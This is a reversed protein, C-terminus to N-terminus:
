LAVRDLSKDSEAQAISLFRAARLIPRGRKGLATLIDLFAADVERGRETAAAVAMAVGSTTLNNIGYRNAMDAFRGVRDLYGLARMEGIDRSLLFSFSPSTETKSALTKLDSESKESREYALEAQWWSDGCLLRFMHQELRHVIVKRRHHALPGALTASRWRTLHSQIDRLANEGTPFGADSPEPALEALSTIQRMSVVLNEKVEGYQLSFLGGPTPPEFGEQLEQSTSLAPTCPENFPYFDASAPEGSRHEDLLRVRTTKDTAHWIFRVPRVDRHLPIRCTGLEDSKIVINGGTASLFAWPTAWNKVFQACHRRWTDETCPLQAEMVHETALDSNNADLLELSFEVSYAPPGSVSLDVRGEFFDDLSPEAPTVLPVMGKFDTTGAVWAVPPTIGVEIAVKSLVPRGRSDTVTAEVVLHHAGQALGSLSIFVARGAEVSSFVTKAGANVSVELVKVDHDACIGFSPIEGLFWDARSQGDWRRAPLGAPWVSIVRGVLIGARRLLRFEDDSIHSPLEVMSAYCGTCRVVTTSSFPLSPLSNRSIIIYCGGSQVRGATSERAQGDAGVEFVWLPGSSMRADTMLLKEVMLNPKEFKIMPRAPDPWSTLVRHQGGSLLWGAPRFGEAGEVACRTARLFRALDPSIECLQSFSPVQAIAIWENPGDKRLVISPNLRPNRAKLESLRTEAASSVFSGYQGVGKIRARGVEERADGLWVKASQRKELDAIIRALTAPLITEGQEDSTGGLLALAIRGVIDEQQLFNRFRSSGEGRNGIYRGVSVPGENLREAIGFRLGYLTQALQTQLDKPLIAHTIPWAIISFQGAWVGRPQFGQFRRHFRKFVDRLWNRGYRHFAWNPTRAEFTSWYDQGNFTYGLEAGYVVWSLWDPLFAARNRVQRHLHTTLSEFENADLGHELAFVPAGSSARAARLEEFHRNLREGWGESLTTEGEVLANWRRDRRRTEAQNCFSSRM